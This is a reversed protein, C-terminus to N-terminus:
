PRGILFKLLSPSPSYDEEAENTGIMFHSFDVPKKDVVMGDEMDRYCPRPGGGEGVLHNFVKGEEM